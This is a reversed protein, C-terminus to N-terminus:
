TNPLERAQAPDGQDDADHLQQGCDPNNGAVLHDAPNRTAAGPSFAM